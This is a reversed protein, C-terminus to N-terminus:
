GGGHAKRPNSPGRAPDMGRQVWAHARALGDESTTARVQRLGPVDDAAPLRTWRTEPTSGTIIAAREMGAAHLASLGAQLVDQVAPQAPHAGQLDLIVHFPESFGDMLHEVDGLWDQVISPTIPGTFELVLGWDSFRISYM